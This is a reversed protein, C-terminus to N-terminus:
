HTFLRVGTLCMTMGYENATAIVDEDRKSGGAQAVYRVNSLALRDLNDSFPFFADSACCLGDINALHAHREDWTIPEIPGTMAGRLHAQEKPGLQDWMVFQEALNVKEPRPTGEKFPLALTKPHQKLLFRDTKDCALRVCAIRSQQGAGIGIAQGHLALAVSNSQTYKLAISAVVLSEVADPPLENVRTVPDAFLRADIRLDNSSQELTLGMLTRTEIAGPEPRYDRDMQFVVYKGGKKAKLIELAEGDYDPAIIGDSVEPKILNALSADVTDSVAIFDGFSAQRDSSRARAYATAIPSLEADGYFHARRFDDDLEAAVAAGAPSVHKFSAAAPKATAEALETVLAWAQLADLANIYSPTGSVVELPCPGDTVIRAHSQNPNCGYKLPIDPM